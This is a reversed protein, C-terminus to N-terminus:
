SWNIGVEELKALNVEFFVASIKIERSRFSAVEKLIETTGGPAGGVTVPGGSEGAAGTIQLYNEYETYWINNKRCIMELADRWQVGQVDVNIPFDRRDTDVIIKGISKKSVESIAALAKDLTATPAISVLADPSTYERFARREAPSTGQGPAVSSVLGLLCLTLVVSHTKM